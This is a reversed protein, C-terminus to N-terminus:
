GEEGTSRLAQWVAESTIPLARIRVGVADDIANALAPAVGINALEGVARLEGTDAGVQVHRIELPPVDGICALKYDGLSATVVQGQEVVLRELVTQSLGYVFGGELQGRFGVPNAIRGPAVVLLAQLITFRGTMRDVTVRLALGGYTPKVAADEGRRHRGLGEVSVETLGLRELRAAPWYGGGGDPDPPGLEDLLKSCADICANGVVATVRSSGAGADTLTEDAGIAEVRVAELPIGLAEAALLRFTAYMGSGQDPVGVRVVVGSSTARAAVVSQGDGAQCGFTAVGVGVDSGAGGRWPEVGARLEELIARVEPVTTRRLRFTIPDEGCTRAVLDVQSEGAFVSQFEGPSRVHGGPPNNSYVAMAREDRVGVEYNAYAHGLISVVRTARPKIGAFAGGDLIAEAEHAHIHGQRLGTRLRLRGPHRVATTGLMEAYTMRAAVPRQTHESLLLCVVELYPAAKSGFDGGINTPRVEIDAIARDALRALDARLRNPVKSSSWVSVRQGRADVVCAHPELPASHVRDFSFTDERVHDCEAFAADVDGDVLVDAGQLNGFPHDDTAGEYEKSRPHLEVDHEGFVDDLDYLPPLPAYSVDVMRAARHATEPDEAAVAAVRQGAFLVRDVALVPYDRLSRGFLRLGIDAGTLVAVVGPLALAADKDIDLLRAHPETSLVFAVHLLDSTDAAIDATFRRRGNVWARDPDDAEAAESATPLRRKATV